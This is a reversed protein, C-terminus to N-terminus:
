QIPYYGLTDANNIIFVVREFPVDSEKHTSTDLRTFKEPAAGSIYSADRILFGHYYREKQDVYNSLCTDNHLHHGEKEFSTLILGTVCIAAMMAIAFQFNNM